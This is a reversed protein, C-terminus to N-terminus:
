GSSCMRAQFEEFMEAWKLIQALMVYAYVVRFLALSSAHIPQSLWVYFAYLKKKWYDLDGHVM